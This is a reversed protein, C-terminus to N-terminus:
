GDVKNLVSNNTPIARDLLTPENLFDAGGGKGRKPFFYLLDLFKSSDPAQRAREAQEESELDKKESIFSFFAIFHM